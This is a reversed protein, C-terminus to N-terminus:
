LNKKKAERKAKYYESAKRKSAEGVKSISAQSPTTSMNSKYASSM